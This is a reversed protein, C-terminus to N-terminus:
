AAPTAATAVTEPTSKTHTRYASSRLLVLRVFASATIGLLIAVVESSATFVGCANELGLVLTTLTVGTAFGLAGARAAEWMRVRSKPGFTLFAHAITNGATSVALAIVNAAYMGLPTRLLFFV